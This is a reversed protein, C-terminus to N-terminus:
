KWKYTKFLEKIEKIHFLVFSTNMLIFALVPALSMDLFAQAFMPFTMLIFILLALWAIKIPIIFFLLVETHPNRLALALFISFYIYSSTFNYFYLGLIICFCNSLFYLLYKKSGMSTEVQVGIFYSVALFFLLSLFNPSIRFPFFLVDVWKGALIKEFTLYVLGHNTYLDLGNILATLITFILTFNLFDEQLNNKNKGIQFM